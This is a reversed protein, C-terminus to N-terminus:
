IHILSLGIDQSLYLDRLYSYNVDRSLNEWQSSRTIYFEKKNDQCDARGNTNNLNTFLDWEQELIEEIIKEKDSM